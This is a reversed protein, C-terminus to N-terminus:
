EPRGGLLKDAVEELPTVDITEPDGVASLMLSTMSKEDLVGVNLNDETRTDPGGQAFSGFRAAGEYIKWLSLLKSPVPKGDKGCVNAEAKGLEGVLLRFAQLQVARAEGAQAKMADAAEEFDAELAAKVLDAYCTRLSTMGYHPYGDEIVEEALRKTWGMHAALRDVSPMSRFFLWATHYADASIEPGQLLSAPVSRAKRRKSFKAEVQAPGKQLFRKSM